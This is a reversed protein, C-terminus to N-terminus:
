GAARVQLIRALRELAQLAIPRLEEGSCKIALEGAPPNPNPPSLPVHAGPPCGAQRPSDARYEGHQWRMAGGQAAGVWDARVCAHQCAMDGPPPLIPRGNRKWVCCCPGGAAELLPPRQEGMCWAANNCASLTRQNVMQPELNYLASHFVEAQFFAFSAFPAADTPPQPNDGNPLELPVGRGTPAVPRACLFCGAVM